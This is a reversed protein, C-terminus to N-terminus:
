RFMGDGALEEAYPWRDESLGTEKVWDKRIKTIIERYRFMKQSYYQCDELNRELMKNLIRLEYDLPEDEDRMGIDM